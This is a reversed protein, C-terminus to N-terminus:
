LALEMRDQSEDRTDVAQARGEWSLPLGRSLDLIEPGSYTVRSREWGQLSLWHAFDPTPPPPCRMKALFCVGAGSADRRQLLHSCPKSPGTRRQTLDKNEGAHQAPVQVPEAPAEKWKSAPPSASLLM